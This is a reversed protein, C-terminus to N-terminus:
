LIMLVVCPSVFTLIMILLIFIIRHFLLTLTIVQLGLLSIIFFKGYELTELNLVTLRESEQYSLDHLEYIEKHLTASSERTLKYAYNFSSVM